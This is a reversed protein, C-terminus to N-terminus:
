RGSDVIEADPEELAEVAEKDKGYWAYKTKVIEGNEIQALAADVDEITDSTAMKLWHRAEAKTQRMAYDVEFYRKYCYPRRPM